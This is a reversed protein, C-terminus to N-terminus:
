FSVEVRGLLPEEVDEDVFVDEFGGITEGVAIQEVADGVSEHADFCYEEGCREPVSKRGGFVRVLGAHTTHREPSCHDIGQVRVIHDV